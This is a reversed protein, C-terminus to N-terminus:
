MNIIAFYYPFYLSKKFFVPFLIFIKLHIRCLYPTNQMVARRIQSSLLKQWLSTARRHPFNKSIKLSSKEFFGRLALNPVCNWSMVFFLLFLVAIGHKKHANYTPAEAVFGSVFSKRSFDKPFEFAEGFYLPTTPAFNKQRSKESLFTPKLSTRQCM